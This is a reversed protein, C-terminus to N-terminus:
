AMFINWALINCHVHESNLYQKSITFFHKTLSVHHLTSITKFYHFFPTSYLCVFYVMLIQLRM